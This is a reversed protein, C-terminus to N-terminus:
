LIHVMLEAGRLLGIDRSIFSNLSAPLCASRADGAAVEWRVPFGSKKKKKKFVLSKRGIESVHKRNLVSSRKTM